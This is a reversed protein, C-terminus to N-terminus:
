ERCAAEDEANVCDAIHDCRRYNEICKGDDCQFQTVLCIDTVPLVSM